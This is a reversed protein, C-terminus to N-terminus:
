SLHYLVGVVSLDFLSERAQGDRDRQRDVGEERHHALVVQHVVPAVQLQPTARRRERAKVGVGQPQLSGVSVTVADPNIGGKGSIGCRVAEAVLPAVLFHPVLRENQRGSGWRGLGLRVLEEAGFKEATTEETTGTRVVAGLIRLVHLDFVFGFPKRKEQASPGGVLGAVGPVM